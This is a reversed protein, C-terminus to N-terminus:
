VADAEAVQERLKTIYSVINKTVIEQADSSRGIMGLTIIYM